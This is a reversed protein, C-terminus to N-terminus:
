NRMGMLDVVPKSAHTNGVAIGGPYDAPFDCIRLTRRNDTQKYVM